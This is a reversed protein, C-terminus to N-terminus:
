GYVILPISFSKNRAFITELRVRLQGGRCLIDGQETEAKNYTVFEEFKMAKKDNNQVLNELTKRDLISGIKSQWKVFKHNKLNDDFPYKTTRHIKGYQGLKVLKDDNLRKATNLLDTAQRHGVEIRGFFQEQKLSIRKIKNKLTQNM